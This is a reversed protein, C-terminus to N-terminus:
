ELMEKQKDKSLESIEFDLKGLFDVYGEKNSYTKKCKNCILIDESDDLIKKCKPCLFKPNM